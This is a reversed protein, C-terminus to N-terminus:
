LNTNFDYAVVLLNSENNINDTNSNRIFKMHMWAYNNFYVGSTLPTSQLSQEMYSVCTRYADWLLVILLTFSSFQKLM